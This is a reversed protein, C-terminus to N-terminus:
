AAELPEELESEAPRGKLRADDDPFIIQRGPALTPKTGLTDVYALNRFRLKDRLRLTKFTRASWYAKAHLRTSISAAGQTLISDMNEFVWTWVDSELAPITEDDMLDTCERLISWFGEYVAKRCLTMLVALRAAPEIVSLAWNLFDEQALAGDYESLRLALGQVIDQAQWAALSLTENAGDLM